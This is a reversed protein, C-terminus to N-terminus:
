LRPDDVRDRYCRNGLGRDLFLGREVRARGGTARRKFVDLCSRSVEPLREIPFCHAAFHMSRGVITEYIRQGIVAAVYLLHM